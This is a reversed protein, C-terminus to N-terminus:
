QGVQAGMPKVGIRGVQQNQQQMVSMQLNKAYNELLAKFREDSQMWQQVKPNSQMLTQLFQLKMPATADNETYQAEFGLMMQALQNQVDTFTKQSATKGDQIFRQALRPDVARTEYATLGARDIAGTVDSPLIKSHIIDLKQLLYDPNLDKVDFELGFMLQEMMSFPDIQALMPNGTVAVLQEPNYQITLAMMHMLVEGWFTYFDDAAREQAIALKAPHVGENFQGFYNAGQLQLLKVLELALTPPPAGLNVASIDQARSMPVQAGPGLRYDM